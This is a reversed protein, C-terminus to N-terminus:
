RGFRYSLKLLFVNYPKTDFLEDLNNKLNFNGSSDDQNRNQSWVLFLTSGPLYEWRVVMNSLFEKVNFNPNEITYLEEAGSKFISYLDNSSNFQIEENTFTHFRDTYDNARSNTIKKLSNYKGSAIFPQGWYQISLDPTINYNLRISMSLTKQDITGFIYDTTSNHEFQDIYQLEKKNISYEPSITIKLNKTPLYKFGVSYNEHKWNNKENGRLINFHSDFSLKKQENTGIYAWINKYGPTLLAPGGRLETTELSEGNINGGMSLYWYNKFQMHMNINGGPGTQEGDFNWNLWQNFNISYNRFISFPEYIRYGIWVVEMINDAQRMFGIDNLELEPSKWATALMFKFKGGFKGLVCKGGQGTLSTRTTDLSVHNADPRQFNHTWSKQTETIAEESGQVHSFYSSLSVEWIKNKWKHVVDFGGTYAATHLFDLHDDNIKRNVATFMGGIVTNGEDFDKQMRGVMYNTLPEVKEEYAIGNSINAFEETTVSELFGVSLGNKTKGTIKAAGAISTFEPIEMYHSDDIDPTHHPRRGIRRSYFLNEDALDGDGFMLPFNLINKGEIFFPRKEEFFTEFTTLNVESPDAEIQGFDPNVTFDMTLNNTLGIKGDLGVNLKSDKGTATFPNSADKEFRDTRAVIYPMIALVKQPKINKLGTLEGYLSVWGSQKKSVQQWLSLEDKRFVYRGVQLGWTYDDSEEFRLQTLPIKMEAYWGKEDNSTKVWWIPDWTKDEREGDNSVIFESKIGAASVLFSFATRKDHYSDFQIAVFDGDMADRRTMRQVISDPSSDYAIFAVYIYNQDYLIAFETKQSPAIGEYPEFQIFDNLWSAKAWAIENPNGDITIEDDGLYKTTYKKLPFNQASCNLILISLLILSSLTKM